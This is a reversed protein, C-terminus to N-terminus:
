LLSGRLYQVFHDRKAKHTESFVREIRNEYSLSTNGRGGAGGSFQSGRGGTTVTIPCTSWPLVVSNSVNRPADTASPSAPPMVCCMPANVTVRSFPSFTVNKSVGPWAANLEIRARPALQVSIMTNTTAASSPTICCVRSTMWNAFSPFPLFAHTIRHNIGNRIRPTERETGIMTAILLISKGLAFM